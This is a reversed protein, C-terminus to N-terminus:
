WPIAGFVKWLSAEIFDGERAYKLTVPWRQCMPVKLRLVNHDCLRGDRESAARYNETLGAVFAAEGHFPGLYKGSGKRTHVMM